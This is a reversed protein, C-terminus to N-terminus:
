FPLNLIRFFVSLFPSGNIVVEESFMKNVLTGQDIMWPNILGWLSMDFSIIFIVAFSIIFELSPKNLFFFINYFYLLPTIAIFWRFGYANGAYDRVKIIYFLSIILFGLFIFIAEKQFQNNKNKIIKFISYIAFILIPSYLFLGRDGFFINFAYTLPNQQNFEGESGLRNWILNQYIGYEPHFQPPLFDGTIQYNLLLHFMILPFAAIIYFIIQKKSIIFFIYVFFLALFTLGTPLDIVASLSVFFGCLSIYIKQKKFQPNDLKIRLFYYFGIFLFSGAITHNTFIISYPLYLTGLGLGLILLTKYKKEINFLCLIKYFYLLLLLFTGGTFLLTILYVTLNESNFYPKDPFDLNFSHHLIYYFGAGIASLVPPKSSYFNGEKLMKDCTYINKENIIFTRKEVLSEITLFRSACNVSLIKSNTFLILFIIFFIFIPAPYIKNFFNTM